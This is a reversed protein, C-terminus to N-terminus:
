HFFFYAVVLVIAPIGLIWGLVYKGMMIEQSTHFGEVYRSLTQGHSPCGSCRRYSAQSAQPGLSADRRGRRRVDGSRPPSRARLVPHHWPTTIPTVPIVRAIPHHTIFAARIATIGHDGRDLAADRQRRSRRHRPAVSPGAQVQAPDLGRATSRAGRGGIQRLRFRFCDVVTRDARFVPVDIGDIRTREVGGALAEDSMRAVRIAPQDLKPTAM